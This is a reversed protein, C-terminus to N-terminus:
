TTQAPRRAVVYYGPTRFRELLRKPFSAEVSEVVFGAGTFLEVIEPRTFFRLHGRDLIGSEAYRWHGALLQRIVSHHAVNPVHAVVRGEEALWAAAMVLLRHPSRLHELIDACLVHDFQEDFSEATLTEVDAALVVDLRERAIAAAPEFLEVGVVATALAREKLAAGTAGGGCGLDLVRGAPRRVRAVIDLRPPMARYAKALAAVDADHTHWWPAAPTTM